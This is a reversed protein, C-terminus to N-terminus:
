DRGFIRGFFGASTRPESALREAQQRWADRDAALDILRAATAEAQGEMRALAEKTTALEERLGTEDPIIAHTPAPTDDPIIEVPIGVRAKRDNGQKKPWKRMAARRRVSDPKIRLLTAAEDYTMYQYEDGEAMIADMFEGTIYRFNDHTIKKRLNYLQRGRRRRPDGTLGGRSHPTKSINQCPKPSTPQAVM